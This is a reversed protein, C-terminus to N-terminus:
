ANEKTRIFSSWLAFNAVKEDTKCSTAFNRIIKSFVLNKLLKKRIIIMKREQAGGSAEDLQRLWGLRGGYGVFCAGTALEM